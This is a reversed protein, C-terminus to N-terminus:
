MRSTAAKPSRPKKWLMTASRGASSAARVSSTPPTTEVQSHGRGRRGGRDRARRHRPPGRGERAMSRPMRAAQRAGPEGFPSGPGPEHIRPLPGRAGSARTAPRSATRSTAQPESAPPPPAPAHPEGTDSAAEAGTRYPVGGLALVDGLERVPAGVSRPPRVRVGKGPEVGDGGSALGRRQRVARVPASARARHRDGRRDRDQRVRIPRLVPHPPEARARESRAGGV